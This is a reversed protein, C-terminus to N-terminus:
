QEESETERDAARKRAVAGTMIQDFQFKTLRARAEEIFHSAIGPAKRKPRLANIQRCLEAQEQGLAKRRESTKPLGVIEAQLQKVRDRLVQRQQETALAPEPVGSSMWDEPRGRHLAQQRRDSGVKYM